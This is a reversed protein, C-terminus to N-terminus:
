VKLILSKLSTPNLLYLIANNTNENDRIKIILEETANYGNTIWKYKKYIRDPFINIRSTKFSKVAKNNRFYSTIDSIITKILNEYLTIIFGIIKFM